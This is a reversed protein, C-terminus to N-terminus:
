LPSLTKGLRASVWNFANLTWGLSEVEKLAGVTGLLVQLIGMAGGMVGAEARSQWGAGTECTCVGVGSECLHQRSVAPECLHWRSM